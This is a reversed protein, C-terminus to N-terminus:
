PAEGSRTSRLQAAVRRQLDKPLPALLGVPRLIIVVLVIVAFISPQWSQFGVLFDPLAIGAAAGMISGWITGLGGVFLMVFLLVITAFGFTEPSVFSITHAYLSGAVSGYVASIVFAIVKYRQVNIGVAKATSEDMAISRLARGFRLQGLRWAVTAAVLTVGWILVYKQHLTFFEFGFVGFPPVGAIGQFGGFFPSSIAFNYFALGVGFTALALYHGRLRLTAYGVVFGLLASVVVGILVGALPPLGWQTSALASFYAGIGLFANHGFSIQGAYGVLINLGLIVIAFIGIQAMVTLGYPQLVFAGLSVLAIVGLLPFAFSRTWYPVPAVSARIAAFDQGLAAARSEERHTLQHEV